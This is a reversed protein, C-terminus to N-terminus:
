AVATSEGDADQDGFETVTIVGLYHAADPIVEDLGAIKVKSRMVAMAAIEDLFITLHQDVAAGLRKNTHIGGDLVRVRNRDYRHRAVLGDAADGINQEIMAKGRFESEAMKVRLAVAANGEHTPLGVAGIRALAPIM